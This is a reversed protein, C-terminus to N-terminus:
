YVSMLQGFDEAGSKQNIQKKKYIFYEKQLSPVMHRAQQTSRIQSKLSSNFLENPAVGLTVLFECQFGNRAMSIISLGSLREKTMTSRLYTKILKIKSFSREAAAVTVPLTASFRLAVWVNPNPIDWASRCSQSKPLCKEVSQPDAIKFRSLNDATYFNTSNSPSLLGIAGHLMQLILAARLPLLLAANLVVFKIHCM